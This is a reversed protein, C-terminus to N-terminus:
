GRVPPPPPHVSVTVDNVDVNLTPFAEADHSDRSADPQDIRLSSARRV